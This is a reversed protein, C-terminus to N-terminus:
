VSEGLILETPLIIVEGASNCSQEMQRLLLHIAQEGIKFTPQSVASISPISQRFLPLDDFIVLALDRPIRLGLQKAASLVGQGIQNNLAFVATPPSASQQLMQYASRSASEVTIDPVSIVLSPDPSIGADRLAREYAACRQTMTSITKQWKFVGIRSHGKEILLRTARYAGLDNDVVVAPLNLHETQRDIQVIPMSSSLKGLYDSNHGSPGLIIGDVRQKRFIHLYELERLPDENTNGVVLQYRNRAAEQEIGHAVARYFPNTIDNLLLGIVPSPKNKLRRVTYNHQSFRNIVQQVAERKPPALTGVLIEGDDPPSVGAIQPPRTYAMM